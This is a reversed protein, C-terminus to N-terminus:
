PLSVPNQECDTVKRLITNDGVTVKLTNEGICKMFDDNINRGTVEIKNADPEVEQLDGFLISGAILAVTAAGVFKFNTYLGDGGDNWRILQDFVKNM